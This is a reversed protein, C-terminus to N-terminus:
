TFMEMKSALSVNKCNKTLGVVHLIEFFSFSKYLTFKLLITKSYVAWLMFFICFINPHPRVITWKGWLFWLFEIQFHDSKWRLFHSLGLFSFFDIFVAFISFEFFFVFFWGSTNCQPIHTGFKTCIPVYKSISIIVCSFRDCFWLIVLHCVCLNNTMENNPLCLFALFFIEAWDSFIVYIPRIVYYEGESTYFYM